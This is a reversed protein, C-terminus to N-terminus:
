AEGEVVPRLAGLQRPRFPKALIARLGAHREGDLSLVSGLIARTSDHATWGPMERDAWEVDRVRLGPDRLAAACQEYGVVLTTRGLDLVPGAGALRAYRPFPDARGEATFLGDLAQGVTFGAAM